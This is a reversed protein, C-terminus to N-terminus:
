SQSTPSLEWLHFKWPTKQLLFLLKQWGRFDEVDWLCSEGGLALGRLLQLPWMLINQPTVDAIHCVPFGCTRRGRYLHPTVLLIYVLIGKHSSWLVMSFICGQLWQLDLFLKWLIPRPFQCGQDARETVGWAACRLMLLSFGGAGSNRKWSAFLPTFHATYIRGQRPNGSPSTETKGSQFATVVLASKQFGTFVSAPLMNSRTTQLCIGSFCSILFTLFTRSGIALSFPSPRGRCLPWWRLSSLHNSELHWFELLFFFIVFFCPFM